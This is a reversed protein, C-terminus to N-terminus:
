NNFISTGGNNIEEQRKATFWAITSFATALLCSCCMVISLLVSKSRNIKM